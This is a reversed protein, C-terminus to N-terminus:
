VWAYVALHCGFPWNHSVSTSVQDSLVLNIAADAMRSIIAAWHGAWADSYLLSDLLRGPNSTRCSRDVYYDPQCLSFGFNDDM